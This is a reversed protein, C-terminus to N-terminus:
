EDAADSTYLLCDGLAPPAEVVLAEPHGSLARERDPEPGEPGIRMPTHCDGCGTVEVLYHGRELRATEIEQPSATATRQCAISSAAAVAVGLAALLEMGKCCAM